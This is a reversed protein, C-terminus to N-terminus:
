LNIDLFGDPKPCENHVLRVESDFAASMTSCICSMRSTDSISNQEITERFRDLRMM